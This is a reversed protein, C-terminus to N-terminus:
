CLDAGKLQIWFRSSQGAESEVGMQGGMREVAKRVITLGMGTGNYATARGVREFMKFIRVHDKPAIGIGNDEVWLRILPFTRPALHSTDPGSVQGGAGSVAGDAIAEARIKVRPKTGPAVFKVANTLLNSLCQALSAEDGLVKPLVGEIQIEAVGTQLQPYIGIIQRVLVDLDVPETKVEARLVRTYTLVDQILTDMRGAAGYINELYKIGEADLQAAHRDLLIKSFGRMARLPARMDHSVSYSFAELEGITERLQATREAVTEELAAAQRSIENHAAVLEQETWKRETIDTLTVRCARGSKFVIAKLGVAVPPRGAVKLTVECRQRVKSAFARQLFADFVSRDEPSVFFGFRRNVLASREIELLSAGALNAERINGGPELTLYGVPAFDYLDTYKELTAELAERAQQLETNQMELEIQHVELEHLVRVSDTESKQDGAKSRQGKRDRLRAEAHRRLEAAATPTNPKRSM